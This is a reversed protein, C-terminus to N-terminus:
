TRHSEADNLDGYDEHPSEESHRHLFHMLRAFWGGVPPTRRHGHNIESGDKTVKGSSRNHAGEGGPQEPRASKDVLHWEPDDPDRTGPDQQTFPKPPPAGMANEAMDKELDM